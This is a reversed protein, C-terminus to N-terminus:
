GIEQRIQAVRNIEAIVPLADAEETSIHQTLLSFLENIVGAQIQIIENQLEVIELPNLMM